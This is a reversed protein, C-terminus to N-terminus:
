ESVAPMNTWGFIERTDDGLLDPTRNVCLSGWVRVDGGDGQDETLSDFSKDYAGQLFNKFM